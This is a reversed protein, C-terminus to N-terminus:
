EETRTTTTTTSSTAGSSTTGSAANEGRVSVEGTQKVDLVERGVEATVTKTESVQRKGIEIEEVVVAQKNVEAREAELDVRITESGAGLRANEVVRGDSVAHREIVVEDHKLDVSVQEQRTEVHKGVEVQGAHERSKNVSLREELLQLRQPTAFSADSYDYPERANVTRGTLVSQDAAQFEPGFDEGDRYDRLRTVQDTTLTDYYVSDTEMRGLGVPVLFERKNGNNVVLYRVKHNDSDLLATTVTGLKTGGQGYVTFGTPDYVSPDRTYGSQRSLELLSVLHAM